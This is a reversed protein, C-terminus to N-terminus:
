ASNASPPSFDCCEEFPLASSPLATVALAAAAIILATLTKITINM